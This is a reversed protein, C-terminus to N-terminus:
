YPFHPLFPVLVCAALVLGSVFAIYLEGAGYRPASAHRLQARLARKAQGAAGMRGLRQPPRYGRALPSHPRTSQPRPELAPGAGMMTEM